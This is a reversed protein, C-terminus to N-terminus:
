ECFMTRSAAIVIWCWLRWYILSVSISPWVAIVTCHIICLLFSSNIFAEAPQLLMSLVQLVKPYPCCGYLGSGLECCTNDDDCKQGDPCVVDNSSVKDVNRVAVVNWPLSHSEQTCTGASLDCETGSPCCHQKDSCCVAQLLLLLWLSLANQMSSYVSRSISWAVSRWPM